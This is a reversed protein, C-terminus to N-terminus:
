APPRLPAGYPGRGTLVHAGARAAGALAAEVPRGAALALTLAAVAFDVWEVHGVVAVASV